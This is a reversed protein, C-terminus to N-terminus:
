FEVSFILVSSHETLAQSEMSSSCKFNIKKLVGDISVAAKRSMTASSSGTLELTECRLVNTGECRADILTKITDDHAFWKLNPRRPETGGEFLSTVKGSRMNQMNTSYSNRTATGDKAATDDGSGKVGINSSATRSVNNQARFSETIEVTCSKAGLSHAIHKLEALREEHAKSFICDVKIYKKRDFTDVYYATDCTPAPIFKIGSMEIAEDYLYLVETGTKNDRWGIAGECVDIGRRIEDDVIIILNPLRFSPSNYEEPFLPNYKKLRHQYSDEKVKESLAVAGKQVGDAASKGVESAKKWFAAMKSTEKTTETIIEDNNEM